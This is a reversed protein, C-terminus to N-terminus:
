WRGGDVADALRYGFPAALAVGGIEAACIITNSFLSAALTVLGLQPRAPPADPQVGAAQRDRRRPREDRRVGHHRDDLVRDGLPPFLRVAIRGPVVFVLESVDVFGGVATLIGLALEAPKLANRSRGRAGRGQPLRQAPAEAPLAAVDAIAQGAPSGSAAASAAIAALQRAAAARMQVSYRGTLRADSEAVLRAEALLSRASRVNELDQQEASGCSGLSLALALCLLRVVTFEARPAANRSAEQARRCPRACDAM